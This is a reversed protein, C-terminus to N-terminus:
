KFGFSTAVRMTLIMPNYSVTPSTLLTLNVVWHCSSPRSSISMTFMETATSFSKSISNGSSYISFNLSMSSMTLYTAFDNWETHCYYRFYLDRAMVANLIM